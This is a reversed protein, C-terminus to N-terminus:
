PPRRTLDQLSGIGDRSSIMLEGITSSPVVEDNVKGGLAVSLWAEGTMSSGPISNSRSSSCFVDAPPKQFASSANKQRRQSKSISDEGGTHIPEEGSSADVINIACDDREAEDVPKWTVSIQERPRKM